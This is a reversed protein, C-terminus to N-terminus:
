RRPSRRLPASRRRRLVEAVERPEDVWLGVRTVTSSGHPTRLTTPGTLVLELNTRSGVGILLMAGEGEGQVHVSRLLGPLEHDVTRVGAIRELPVDVRAHIGDRVQLMAEGLLHPRVRYAALMGLMWVLGWVGLVLLPIRLPTWWRSLVVDLVVVEVASGFIWLWLMPAVLRSYGIPTAGAPVDPRRVLWRGLARYLTIELRLAKWALALGRRVADM